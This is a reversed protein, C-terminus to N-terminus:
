GTNLQYFGLLTFQTDTKKKKKEKQVETNKKASQRPKLMKWFEENRQLYYINELCIIICM